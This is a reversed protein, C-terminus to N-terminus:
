LALMRKFFELKDPRLGNLDEETLWGQSVLRGFVFLLQSYRYDYKEDVERRRKSLYEQIRWIVRSDKERQLMAQVELKIAQCEREFARDFAERAIRKETQSWTVDNM